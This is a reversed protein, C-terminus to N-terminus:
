LGLTRAVINRQVENTGGYISAARAYLHREAVGKGGASLGIMDRTTHWLAAYPGGAELIFSAIDQQLETGIVKLLSALRGGESTGIRDMVSEEFALLGDFRRELEALAARGETWQTLASRADGLYLRCIESGSGGLRENELLFRAYRWGANEEGVRAEAPIRVSDFVVRNFHHQNDISSIPFVSIGPSEMPVLFFSIGDTPRGNPLTRALLFIMNADHAYTTWIKEGDIIYGVGDSRATTRLAALDSGAGPESFGQCWWHTSNLIQPLYYRRQADSGFASIVPGVMKLGHMDMLPARVRAAEHRFIWQQLSTWACGGDAIPWSQALWGQRNLIDKWRIQLRKEAYHYQDSTGRLDEPLNEDLFRKVTNRFANM